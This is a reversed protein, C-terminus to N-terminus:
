KGQQSISKFDLPLQEDFKMLESEKILQHTFCQQVLHYLSQDLNKRLEKRINSKVGRSFIWDNERLNKFREPYGDIVSFCHEVESIWFSLNTAHGALEEPPLTSLKDLTDLLPDCIREIYSSKSRLPKM